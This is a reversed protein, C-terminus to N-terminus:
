SDPPGPPGPPAGARSVLSPELEGVSACGLLALTRAVGAQFLRLVQDVGAEGAAALGWIYPRGVLVARAGLALARVVDVGRRVGGDLLVEVAGGTAEVVEPLARLTAVAGDLVNGGHNSVVVADAGLDVCRRADDGRLVGKVVLPGPWARRIWALDDWTPAREAAISASAEAVSLVRGSADVLNPVDLDLGDRLFGALWAPRRLMGPGHRLATALDIRTPIRGGRLPREPSAAAAMDVTVVLAGCGAQRAREIARAAVERGGAFYVQYWTRAPGAAAAIAEVPRSALSSVAMAIGARRAARAVGLEGDRHALRVFGAPAVVVPLALRQGLVEVSTDIGTPAIGVRPHFAVSRFADRNAAITLREESGGELYRFVSSPLRRRAARRADDPGLLRRARRPLPAAGPAPDHPADGTM